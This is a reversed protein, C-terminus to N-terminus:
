TNRVLLSLEYTQGLYSVLPTEGTEHAQVLSPGIDHGSRDNKRVLVGLVCHLLPEQARVLGQIPEIWCLCKPRPQISDDRVRREIEGATALYPVRLLERFGNWRSEPIRRFAALQPLTKLGSQYLKRFTRARYYDEMIDLAKGVRFNSLHQTYRATSGPRIQVV